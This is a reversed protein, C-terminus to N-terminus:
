WEWCEWCEWCEWGCDRFPAPIKPYGPFILGPPSFSDAPIKEVRWVPVLKRLWSPFFFAPIKPAQIMEQPFNRGQWERLKIGHQSFGSGAFFFFFPILTLPLIWSAGPAAPALFVFSKPNEPSDPASGDPLANSAADDRLVWDWFGVRHNM